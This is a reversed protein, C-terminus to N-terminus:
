IKNIKLALTLNFDRLRIRTLIEQICSSTEPRERLCLKCFNKMKSYNDM